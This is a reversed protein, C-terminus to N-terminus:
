AESGGTPAGGPAVHIVRVNAPQANYPPRNFAWSEAKSIRTINVGDSQNGGLCHYAGDDEAVYMTVHGGGDRTKTMVDGLMPHPVATGFKRWNLAWLAAAPPFPLAKGARTACVLMFLGCWAISDHVYVGGVGAEKALALIVPNDGSGAAEKLGYLKLGELLMKPSPEKGLWAYQAPLM